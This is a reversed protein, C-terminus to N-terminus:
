KGTPAKVEDSCIQRLINQVDTVHVIRASNQTNKDSVNKVM